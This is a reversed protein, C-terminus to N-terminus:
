RAGVEKAAIEEAIEMCRIRAPLYDDTPIRGFTDRWWDNRFGRVTEDYPSRHAERQQLLHPDVTTM